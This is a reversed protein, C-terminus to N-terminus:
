RPGAREGCVALPDSLDLLPDSQRVYHTFALGETWFTFPLGISTPDFGTAQAADFTRYTRTPAGVTSTIQVVYTPSTVKPIYANCSTALNRVTLDDLGLASIINGRMAWGTPAPATPKGSRSVTIFLANLFANHELVLGDFADDAMFLSDQGNAIVTDSLRVGSGSAQLAHNPFGWLWASELRNSPGDLRAGNWSRHIRARRVTQWGGYSGSARGILLADGTAGSNWNEGMGFDPNADYADKDTPSGQKIVHSVDLGEVLTSWGEIWVQAARATVNRLVVGSASTSVFVGTGSTKEVVLGDFVLHDGTIRVSGWNLPALYLDDALTPMGDHYTHVYVKGTTALFTGYQAEVAALSGVAKFPPPIELEFPRGLSAAFPAVRDDVRIPRWNTPSRQAVTGVSQCPTAGCETTEYVHPFGEVATWTTPKDRTGSLRAGPEFYFTIPASATGSRTFTLQPMSYDGAAVRVVSGAPFPFTAATWLNCPAVETCTNSTGTPAVYHTYPSQAALVNASAAGVACLMWIRNM